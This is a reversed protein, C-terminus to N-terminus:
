QAAAGPQAPPAAPPTTHLLLEHAQAQEALLREHNQDFLQSLRDFELSAEQLGQANGAKISAAALMAQANMAAIMEKSANDILKNKITETARQLAMTLMQSQQGMQQLQSQLQEPSGVKQLQPPLMKQVIEMAEESQPFDSQNLILTMLPLALQPVAKAIDTLSQVAQQRKSAYSGVSVTCSYRGVAMDHNKVKGDTGTFEQNALVEERKSDPRIITLTRPADYVVPFMELMIEGAFVQARRMNDMWNMNASDSRAQLGAIARGSQDSKATGLSPDYINFLQKMINDFERLGEIYASVDAATDQRQPPPVAQGAIDRPKYPLYPWNEENLTDWIKKFEEIQGIAAIFPSKPALAVKEVFGSAMYNYIRQVDRAIRVMGALRRQGKIVRERGSVMVMPIYKGPIDRGKTNKAYDDGMDGDLIEVANIKCWKPKPRSSRRTILKGSEDAEVPIPQVQEPDMQGEDMKALESKKYWLGAREEIEDQWVGDGGVTRVLTGYEDEMYYYEGVRISDSTMWGAAEDGISSFNTLGCAKSGKYQTLYEGRPMDYVIFCWKRDKRTPDEANPDDYICFDNSFGEIKIVQNFSTPSEYETVIRFYSWGKEIMHEFATDYVTEANSVVEIHRILGQRIKASEPDAGGGVPDIQIAPRSMRQENTVHQIFPQIRNVTVVPRKKRTRRGRIDDDWQGDGEVMLVDLMGQTRNYFESQDAQNFRQMAQALFDSVNGERTPADPDDPVIATEVRTLNVSTKSVKSRRKFKPTDLVPPKVAM